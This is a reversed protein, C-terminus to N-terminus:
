QEGRGKVLERVGGKQILDLVDVGDLEVRVEGDGPWISLIPDGQDSRALKVTVPASTFSDKVSVEEGPYLLFFAGEPEINLTLPRPWDNRIAFQNRNVM